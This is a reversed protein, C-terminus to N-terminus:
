NHELKGKKAISLIIGLAISLSAAMLVQYQAPLLFTITHAPIWFFPITKVVVFKFFKHWDIQSIVDDLNIKFINRLKGKGLEIYTDTIRHFIMFTPAFILNMILSTLFARLLRGIFLDQSLSPLLYLEQVYIVGSAFIKFILVFGLGLVGWIIFKYIIGVIGRYKGTMTRRALLEGMTALVATKIFGMLYRYNETLYVFQARSEDIILILIIALIISIWALDKLKIM